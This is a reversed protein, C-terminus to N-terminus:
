RIVPGSDETVWSGRYEVGEPMLRGRQRFRRYVPVPDANEFREIVMYLVNVGEPCTTTGL